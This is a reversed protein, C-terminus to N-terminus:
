KILRRLLEANGKDLVKLRNCMETAKARNGQALYSIGAQYLIEMDDPEISLAKEYAVIAEPYRYHSELNEAYNFLADTNNPNIALAAKYADAEREFDQKRYFAYGLEVYAGELRPNLKVATQYQKIAEDWRLADRALIGKMYANFAEGSFNVHKLQSLPISKSTAALKTIDDVPTALNIHKEETILLGLFRGQEDVVAGKSATTTQTAVQIYKLGGDRKRDSVEKIDSVLAEQLGKAPKSSDSVLYIRKGVIEKINGVPISKLSNNDVKMVALNKDEDKWINSTQYTSGDKLTIQLKTAGALPTLKSAILGDSGIVVGQQEKLVTGADNLAQVKVFASSDLTPIGAM